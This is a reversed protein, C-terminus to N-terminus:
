KPDLSARHEGLSTRGKDNTALLTEIQSTIQRNLQIEYSYSKGGPASDDLTFAKHDASPRGGAKHVGKFLIEDGRLIFIGSGSSGKEASCDGWIGNSSKINTCSQVILDSSYVFEADLNGAPITQTTYAVGPVDKQTASVMIYQDGEKMPEDSDEIKIPRVGLLPKRLRVISLDKYFEGSFDRTLPKFTSVDIALHETSGKRQWFCNSLAEKNKGSKQVFLHANTILTGDENMLTATGQTSSSIGPCFLDGVVQRLQKEHKTLNLYPAM